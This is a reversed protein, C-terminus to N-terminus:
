KTLKAHNQIKSKENPNFLNEYFHIQFMRCTASELDQVRDEVMWINVFSRLKLKIDFAQVFKFFNRAPNSLSNIENRTLGRCAALNFKIKCFTIKQDARTMQEVGLLIKYVIPKDDQIIFHKLGDLNFSDFFFIYNRPVIDIISWWHVGPKDSANTNAIIFPHKGKDSIM